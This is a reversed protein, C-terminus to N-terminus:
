RGLQRWAAVEKETRGFDLVNILKVLDNTPQAAMLPFQRTMIIAVGATTERYQRSAGPDCTAAVVKEWGAIFAEHTVSAHVAARRQAEFVRVINAERLRIEESIAKAAHHLRRSETRFYTIEKVCAGLQATVYAAAGFPSLAVAAVQGIAGHWQVKGARDFKMLDQTAAM